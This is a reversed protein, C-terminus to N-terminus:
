ELDRRAAELWKTYPETMVYTSMRDLPLHRVGATFDPTAEALRTAFRRAPDRNSRRAQVLGAILQCQRDLIPFAGGDNEFLGVVFLNEHQRHFVNAFLATRDGSRFVSEPLFPISHHYGTALLILDVDESPGDKFHVTSGDLRQVDGRAQLDGHGLYHLIQTNMIPHTEFIRHDPAPLGFKRVDGVLLKLLGQFLPQALRMPLHPGEHAFVDAPKGLIHKPIFWYGRRLSLLARRAHIAADVAIDCGSNGAGVVLVRKGKLEDTSRYTASHRIEGDFTGEFEPVRPDWNHGNAVVLASYSRERGDHFRLTWRGDSEPWAREVTTDFLIQRRLDFREAFDRLYSLVQAHHPYDPFDGPMPVDTFSSMTKSSIFHASEYLPTDARSFDWLGGVDSAREIVEFPVGSAALHRAMCLGGPGAGVVAIPEHSSKAVKM